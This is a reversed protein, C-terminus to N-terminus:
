HSLAIDKKMIRWDSSFEVLCNKQEYFIQQPQFKWSFKVRAFHYINLAEDPIFPIVSAPQANRERETHRERERENERDRRETHMALVEEYPLQSRVLYIAELLTSSSAARANLAQAWFYWVMVEVSSQQNFCTVPRGQMLSLFYSRSRSPLLMICM